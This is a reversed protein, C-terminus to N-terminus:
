LRKPYALTGLKVADDPAAEDFSPARRDTERTAFTAFEDGPTGMEVAGIRNRLQENIMQMASLVNSRNLVEVLSSAASPAKKEELRDALAYLTQAIHMLEPTGARAYDDIAEELVARGEARLVVIEEGPGGADLLHALMEGIPHAEFQDSTM